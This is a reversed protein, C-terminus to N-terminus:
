KVATSKLSHIKKNADLGVWAWMSDGSAFLELPEKRGSIELKSFQGEFPGVRLRAHDVPHEFSVDMGLSAEDSRQIKFSMKVTKSKGGSMTRVPWDEIELGTWSAPIRPMIKLQAPDIDDIGVLLQITYVVEGLQYLNGLDGWRRWMTGGHDIISGEPVTYPYKLHPAFCIKAMWDVMKEADDMQDLLLASETIYGQGYGIGATAAFAPENRGLQMRYTNQTIELWGEPLKNAVDYGWYDMGLCLPALTSHTYNFMANKEPDWVKGWPEKELPYYAMMADFLRKAQGRWRSAKEPKGVVDAMDAYGLLGLYCVFDCYMSPANMGGESEAYLLGHESFSLEPHDLAWPIFEAAENIADWRDLIWQKGRGQKLWARWRSVMLLGHGDTEPNGMDRTTYKTHWGLDKLKDFYLHPKNAVVTAHGPVPKGGLQLEPYSEPFYMMWQDFFDISANITDDLGINSLLTLGRLRTYADGHFAGLGPVYGGFSNYYDAGKASEHVMGDEDVREMLDATNDYYIRTMLEAIPSGSFTVKPGAFDEPAVRSATRAILESNIQVPLTYFKEQLAKIAEMRSEPMPEEGSITHAAVWASQAESTGPASVKEFQGTASCDGVGAFSLGRVEVRGIKEPSDILEIKELTQARLAIRFYYDTKEKEYGDVANAICLAHDLLVRSPWDSKFPEPATKYGTNFFATYGVILPILDKTGDAYILAIGGLQNGIFFNREASGGGWAPHPIDHSNCGGLLYLFEARIRLGDLTIKRGEESGGWLNGALYAVGDVLTNTQGVAKYCYVTDKEM